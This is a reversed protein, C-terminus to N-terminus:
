SHLAHTAHSHRLWHPSPITDLKALEAYKVVIRRISRDCIATGGERSKFVPELPNKGERSTHLHILHTAPIIVDRESDGKGVVGIKGNGTATVSIQGWKLTSIESVRFAGIYLLKIVLWDRTAQQKAFETPAQKVAKKAESLMAGVDGVSLVRKQATKRAKPMKTKSAANHLTFGTEQAYKLFSKLSAIRRRVTARTITGDAELELLSSLYRDCDEVMVDPLELEDLHPKGGLMWQAFHTIDNVYARATEKSKKKLWNNLLESTTNARTIKAPGQMEQVIKATVMAQALIEAQKEEPLSAIAQELQDLRTLAM